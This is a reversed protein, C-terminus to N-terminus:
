DNLGSQLACKRFILGAYLRAVSNVRHDAHLHSWCRRKSSQRNAVKAQPARDDKQALHRFPRIPQDHIATLAVPM